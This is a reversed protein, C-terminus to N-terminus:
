RKLKRDAAALVALGLLGALIEVGLYFLLLPSPRGDVILSIIRGRRHVM